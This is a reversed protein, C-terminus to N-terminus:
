DIDRHACFQMSVQLGPNRNELALTAGHLKMVAKVLSLGLGNGPETRSSDLRVYREMVRAHDSTRIGPGNDTVVVRHGDASCHIELGIMAGSPSYKIANELLNGIAQSILAKSGLVNCEQGNLITLTQEKESALMEYFEGLEHVAKSLDFIAWETRHEGSELQSINLLENFTRIVGDIELMAQQIAERYDAETRQARGEELLAVELHNRLRTIPSRLDHAVNDTVERMGQMLQQIRDLMQNLHSALDDFEDSYRSIPVRQNLDGSVIEAATAVITDVRRLVLGGLLLGMLVSLVIVTVIVEILYDSIFLLLDSQEVPRLLVLRSNDALVLAVGPWYVDDEAVGEPLADEDIWLGRVDVNLKPEVDEPWILLNGFVSVGQDDVLLFYFETESMSELVDVVPERGSKSAESLRQVSQELQESVEEDLGLMVTAYIGALSVGLLLTALLSATLALRIASTRLLRPLKPSSDSGSM